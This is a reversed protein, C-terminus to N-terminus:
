PQSNGRMGRLKSLMGAIDPRKGDDGRGWAHGRGQHDDGRWGRGEDGGGMGDPRQPRSTIWSNMQTRWDGPTGPAAPAATQIASPPAPMPPTAGNRYADKEPKADRWTSFQTKYADRSADWGSRDAPRSWEPRADRWADQALNWGDRNFEPKIPRAPMIPPSGQQSIVPQAPIAPMAPGQAVNPVAPTAPTAGSALPNAVTAPQAATAANFRQHPSSFM